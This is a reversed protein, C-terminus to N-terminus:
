FIYDLSVLRFKFYFLSFSTGKSSSPQSTNLLWSPPAIGDILLKSALHQSYLDTQQKVQEIISNKREFIQVLLKEVTSMKM